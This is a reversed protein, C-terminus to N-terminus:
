RRLRWAPDRVVAFVAGCRGERGWLSCAVGGDDWATRDGLGLRRDLLRCLGYDPDVASYVQRANHASEARSCEHTAFRADSAADAAVKHRQKAM